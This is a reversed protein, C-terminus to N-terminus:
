HTSATATVVASPPPVVFTAFRRRGYLHIDRAWVAPLPADDFTIQKMDAYIEFMQVPTLDTFETYSEM